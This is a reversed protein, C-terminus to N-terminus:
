ETARLDQKASYARGKPASNTHKTHAARHEIDSAQPQALISRSYQCVNALAVARPRMSPMTKTHHSNSSATTFSLARIVVSYSTSASTGSTRM